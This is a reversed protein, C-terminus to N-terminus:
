AEAAHDVNALISGNSVASVKVGRIPAGTQDWVCGIISGSDGKQAWARSPLALSFVLGVLVLSFGLKM